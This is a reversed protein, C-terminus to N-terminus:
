RSTLPREFEGDIGFLDVLVMAYQLTARGGLRRTMDGEACPVESRIEHEVAMARGFGVAQLM